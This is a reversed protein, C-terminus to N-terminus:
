LVLVPKLLQVTVTSVLVLVSQLTVAPEPTAMLVHVYMPLLVAVMLVHSVVCQDTAVDVLTDQTVPALKLLQVTGTSALVLVSQLTVAPEPTAVLVHACMPHQVPAITRAFKPAFPIKAILATTAKLVNVCTPPM